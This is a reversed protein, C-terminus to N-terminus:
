AALYKGYGAKKAHGENALRHLMLRANGPACGLEAALAKPTVPETARSLYLLAQKKLMGADLREAPMIDPETYQVRIDHGEGALMYTLEAGKASINTKGVSVIRTEPDLESLSFRILLRAAQVLSASGAVSGAKTLHHMCFICLGTGGKREQETSIDEALQRLPTWFKRRIFKVSTLATDCLQSVPDLAVLGVDGINRIERELLGLHDPLTFDEGLVRTMDFVRSLDAGAARLRWAMARRVHDEPTVLIVNKPGGFDSETGDPMLDGRTIRAAVDAEWLGKGIGGEGAGLVAENLPLKGRWGWRQEEPEIDAYCATLASPM